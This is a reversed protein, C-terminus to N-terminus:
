CKENKKELSCKQIGQKKIEQLQCRIKHRILEIEDSLESAINLLTKQKM